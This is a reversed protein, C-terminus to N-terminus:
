GYFDAKQETVPMVEPRAVRMGKRGNCDHRACSNVQLGDPRNGGQIDVYQFHYIMDHFMGTSRRACISSHKCYQFRKIGALM